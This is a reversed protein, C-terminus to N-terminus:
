RIHKGTLDFHIFVIKFTLPVANTALTNRTPDSVDQLAFSSGVRLKGLVFNGVKFPDDVGSHM